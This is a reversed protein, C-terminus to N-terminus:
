LSDIFWADDAAAKVRQIEEDSRSEARLIMEPSIPTSTEGPDTWEPLNKHLYDVLAWRDMSGYKDDISELLKVEYRSLEDNETPAGPKLQVDYKEPAGFFDFWPTHAEDRAGENILNLVQSLVPGFKMAVHRDGTVMTGHDLLMQRDALYLLKILKMYNIAGGHRRAILAAAQATKKANFKFRM